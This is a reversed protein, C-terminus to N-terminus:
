FMRLKCLENQIRKKAIAYYEESIEIGIFKRKTQVAAVGTTGSGMFPDLILNGEDAYTRILYEILVVPKQTPHVPNRDRKVTLITNPFSYEILRNEYEPTPIAEHPHGVRGGWFPRDKKIKQPNYRLKGNGFVVINEHKILPRVNCIQFGTARNREWIWEYKFWKRNSNILDTTFPQTANFVYACNDKGVHKLEAWMKVLNPISDWVCKTTGYPPDTIVSDVSNAELAPLVELCDGRYIEIGEALVEHEFAM